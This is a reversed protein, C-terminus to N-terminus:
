KAGGQAPAQKAAATMAKDLAERREKNPSLPDYDAPALNKSKLWDYARVRAAPSADELYVLNEALLRADLQERNSLGKTIEDLSAAHRGAEGAYSTLVASLEAPMKEASQMASLEAFCASDILWGLQAKEMPPADPKVKENIRKSLNALTEDDAVLAVDSCLSANTQMALYILAPRASASQTSLTELAAAIGAWDASRPAPAVPSRGKASTADSLDKVCQALAAAQEPGTERSVEIVAVTAHKQEGGWRSPMVIAMKSGDGVPIPDLLARERRPPDSVMVGFQMQDAAPQSSGSSSPNGPARYVTVEVSRRDSADASGAALTFVATVDGPLAGRSDAIGEARGFKGAQVDALFADFQTARALRVPGILEGSPAIPRTSAPITILRATPAVTSLGAPMRELASWHVVVSIADSAAAAPDIARTTPQGAIGALPPGAHHRVTAQMGAPALAAPPSKSKNGQTCGAVLIFGLLLSVFRGGRPFSTHRMANM